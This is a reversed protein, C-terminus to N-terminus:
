APRQFFECIAVAVAPFQPHADFVAQGAAESQTARVFFVQAAGHLEGPPRQGPLLAFPAVMYWDGEGPIPPSM